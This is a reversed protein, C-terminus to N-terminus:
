RSGSEWSEVATEVPATERPLHPAEALEIAEEPTAAVEFLDGEGAPAFGQDVM